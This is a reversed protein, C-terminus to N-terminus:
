LTRKPIFKRLDTSDTEKTEMTTELAVKTTGLGVMTTESAETIMELLGTERETEQSDTGNPDMEQGMLTM